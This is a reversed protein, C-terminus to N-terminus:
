LYLYWKLLCLYRKSKIFFFYIFYNFNFEINFILKNLILKTHYAVIDHRRGSMDPGGLKLFDKLCSMHVWLFKLNKYMNKWVHCHRM